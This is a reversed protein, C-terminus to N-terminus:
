ESSEGYYEKPFNVLYLRKSARTVATYLWRLYERNMMDENIYGQDIFVADWQGGQAKHCTIAYAFKVQLANFYPNQKLQAYRERRTPVDQYDEMVSEFFRQSEAQNLSPSESHITDLLLRVEMEPEEPWDVLRAISDAFKFGYMEQEGSVREIEIIDGNAIFGPKSKDDLWFYNNKVVMMLDGGSVNDEQWKIRARIQQNYLNARKNSRTVVMCGDYGFEGYADNLAEEVEPGNLRVVDPFGDVEFRPQFGVNHRLMERLETANHLIGSAKAQRVVNTLEIATTEYFYRGRLFDPDLAPSLPSGVPPLQATDGVFILKCRNGSFVFELLDDLLNGSGFVSRSGHDSIAPIMSAEDVIFLTNVHLNDNLSYREVGEKFSQRRYIKRHITTAIKGSFGGLVKAARGTPALLVSKLGMSPLAKVLAAILSTKGTGAYGKLLFLHESVPLRIFEALGQIAVTQDNTPEFGLHEFLLSSVRDNLM